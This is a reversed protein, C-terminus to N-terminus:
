NLCKKDSGHVFNIPPHPPPDLFRISPIYWNRYQIHIIQLFFTLIRTDQLLWHRQNRTYNCDLFQEWNCWMSRVQLNKSTKSADGAWWHGIKYM